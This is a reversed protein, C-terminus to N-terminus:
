RSKRESKCWFRSVGGYFESDVIRWGCDLLLGRISIRSYEFTHDDDSYLLRSGLQLKAQALPDSDLYDPVEVYSYKFYESLETLMISPYDIHEVIHSLFVLDNQELIRQDEKMFQLADLCFFELDKKNYRSKATNILELNHDIGITKRGTIKHLWVTDTGCACGLDIVRGVNSINKLIFERKKELRLDRGELESNTIELCIRRLIFECELAIGLLFRQSLFKASFRYFRYIASAILLRKKRREFAIPVHTIFDLTLDKHEEGKINQRLNPELSGM